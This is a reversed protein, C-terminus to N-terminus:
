KSSKPAVRPARAIEKGFFRTSSISIKADKKKPLVFLSKAPQLEGSDYARWTMHYISRALALRQEPTLKGIVQTPHIKAIFFESRLYNSRCFLSQQLLQGGIAKSCSAKRCADPFRHLLLKAPFCILDLNKSTPITPYMKSKCCRFMPQLTCHLMTKPARWVCDFPGRQKPIPQQEDRKGCVMSNFISM